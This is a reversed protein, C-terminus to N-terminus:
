EFSCCPTAYQTEEVALTLEILFFFREADSTRWRMQCPITNSVETKWGTYMLGILHRWRSRNQAIDAASSRDINIKSLDDDINNGWTIKRAGRALKLPHSYEVLDQRILTNEPLRMVYGYLRLRRQTITGSWPKAETVKYLKASTIKEPFKNSHSQKFCLLVKLMHCILNCGCRLHSLPWISPKNYCM